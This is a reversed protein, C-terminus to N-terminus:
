RQEKLSRERHKDHRGMKLHKGWMALQLRQDAPVDPLVEALVEHISQKLKDDALRVSAFGELLQVESVVDTKLLEVMERRSHRLERFAGRLERRHERMADAVLDSAESPSEKMLKRTMEHMIRRDKGVYREGVLLGLLIGNAALSLLLVILTGRRRNM